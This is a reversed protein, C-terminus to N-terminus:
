EFYSYGHNENETKFKKAFNDWYVKDAYKIIKYLEKESKGNEIKVFRITDFLRDLKYTKCALEENIYVNTISISYDSYVSEVRIIFDKNKFRFSLDNLRYSISDVFKKRPVIETILIEIAGIISSIGLAMGFLILVERM